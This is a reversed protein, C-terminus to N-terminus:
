VFDESICCAGLGSHVPVTVFLLTSVQPILRWHWSLWVPFCFMFYLLALLFAKELMCMEQPWSPERGGEDTVRRSGPQGIVIGM